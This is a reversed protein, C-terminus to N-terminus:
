CPPTILFHLLSRSLYDKNNNKPINTHMKNIVDGTLTDWYWLKWLSNQFSFSQFLVHTSKESWSTNFWVTSQSSQMSETCKAYLHSWLTRWLLPLTHKVWSLRTQVPHSHSCMPLRYGDGCSEQTVHFSYDSFVAQKLTFSLCSQM